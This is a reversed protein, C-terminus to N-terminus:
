FVTILLVYSCLYVVAFVSRKGPTGINDLDLPEIDLYTTIYQITKVSVRDSAREREREFVSQNLIRLPLFQGVIDTRTNIWVQSYFSVM